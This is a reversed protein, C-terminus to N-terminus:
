LKKKESRHSRSVYRHTAYHTHDAHIIVDNRFDLAYRNYRSM